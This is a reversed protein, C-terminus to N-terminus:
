LSPGTREPGIREPAPANRQLPQLAASLLEGSRIRPLVSGSEVVQAFRPQQALQAAVQYSGSLGSSIPLYVLEDYIALVKDWLKTVEYPSPQSTTINKGAQQHAFFEDRTLNVGEYYCADGIYFPMPLVYVGLAQAQEPAMSSHSDTVVATTKM